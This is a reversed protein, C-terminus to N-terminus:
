YRLDATPANPNLPYPGYLVGNRGLRYNGPAYGYIAGRETEYYPAYPPPAYIVIRPRRVGSRAAADEALLTAAMLTAACVLLLKKM